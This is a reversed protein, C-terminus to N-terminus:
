NPLPEAPFQLLDEYSPFGGRTRKDCKQEDLRPSGALKISCHRARMITLLEVVFEPLVNAKAICGSL